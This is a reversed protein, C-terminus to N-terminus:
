LFLNFKSIMFHNLHIEMENGNWNDITEEDSYCEAPFFQIKMGWRVIQKWLVCWLTM